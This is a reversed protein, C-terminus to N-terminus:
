EGEVEKPNDDPTESLVHHRMLDMFAETEETLPSSTTLPILIEPPDPPDLRQILSDGTLTESVDYGAVVVDYGEVCQVLQPEDFGKSWWWYYKDPVLLENKLATPTPIWSRELNM